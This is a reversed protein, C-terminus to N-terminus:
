ARRRRDRKYDWRPDVEVQGFLDLLRRRELAAVYERLARDVAERKTRHKGLRKANEVLEDDLDLNTAM